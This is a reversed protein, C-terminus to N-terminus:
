GACVSNSFMIFNLLFNIHFPVTINKGYILRKVAYTTVRQPIVYDRNLKLYVDDCNGRRIADGRFLTEVHFSAPPPTSARGLANRCPTGFSGCTFRKRNIRALAAERSRWETKGGKRRRDRSKKENDATTRGSEGSAARHKADISGM